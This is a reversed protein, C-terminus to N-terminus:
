DDKRRIVGGMSTWPISDPTVIWPYRWQHQAALKELKKQVTMNALHAHNWTLLYDLRNSTAFALHLADDFETQPFLRSDVLIGYCIRVDATMPLYPFSKAAFIANEQGRYAGATLERETHLSTSCAFHSLEFHWWEAMKLQRISAVLSGGRYCLSSFINTELYITPKREM